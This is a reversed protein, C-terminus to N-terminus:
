AASRGRERLRLAVDAAHAVLAAALWAGVSMWGGAVLVARLALLLCGGAALNLLLGALPLRGRLRLAFVCLVLAELVMAALILEAIRGSEFLAAV